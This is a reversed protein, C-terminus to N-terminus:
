NWGIHNVCIRFDTTKEAYASITSRELKSSNTNKRGREKKKRSPADTM